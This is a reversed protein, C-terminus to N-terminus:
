PMGSSRDNLSRARWNDGDRALDNIACNSIGITAFSAPGLGAVLSTLLVRILLGHLVVVVTRGELGELAGLFAPVARARMAAYSEDGEPAFDLDGAMWRAMLGLYASWTEDDKPRGSLSPMRREHLTDVRRISLGCAEAIPRCTEIARRMGSCFLADPRKASLEGALHTAQRWGKEGLGIDSEAGHFQEPAATEAHRILLVCTSM